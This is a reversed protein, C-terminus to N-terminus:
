SKATGLTEFVQQLRESSCISDGSDSGTLFSCKTLISSWKKVTASQDNVQSASHAVPLRLPNQHKYSASWTSSAPSCCWSAVFEHLVHGFHSAQPLCLTSQGSSWRVFGDIESRPLDHTITEHWAVSFSRIYQVLGRDTSFLLSIISTGEAISTTWAM